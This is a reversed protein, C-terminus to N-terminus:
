DVRIDQPGCLLESMTRARGAALAVYAGVAVSGTLVLAVIWGAARGASRERWVIWGGIVGLALYLDLITVRAWVNALLEAVAGEEATALGIAIAVLMVATATWAGLRVARLPSPTQLDLPASVLM